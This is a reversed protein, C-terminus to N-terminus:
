SRPQEALWLPLSMDAARYTDSVAELRGDLEARVLGMEDGEMVAAVVTDDDEWTVQTLAAVTNSRPEFDVVSQWTRTDLVALGSPGFGDSDPASGAVLAGDPSFAHLSYDCTRWVLDSTSRAPAMVGWCSGKMPDYSVLGAVLGSAESTATVTLFGELPVLGDDTGSAAYATTRGDAATVQFVVTEEDLYGVPLVSSGSPVDWTMQERDYMEESPEDVVVTRGPVNFDRQVYLVRTGETNTVIGDGGLTTREVSMEADLVVNEWGNKTGALGMWGDRYPTLQSYPMGLDLEGEPAVLTRPEGLIYRVTTEAGRALGQLTFTFSGDPDPTPAAPETAGRDSPEATPTAAVQPQRDQGDQLASNVAVGTPLAISAVAAAVAGTVLHRRRQMRQARARVAGFGVPQGSVEGARERLARALLDREDLDNM